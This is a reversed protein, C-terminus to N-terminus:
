RWFPRDAADLVEQRTLGLDKLLHPNEALDRLEQRKWQWEWFGLWGRWCHTIAHGWSQQHLRSGQNAQLMIPTPM